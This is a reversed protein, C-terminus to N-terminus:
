AASSKVTSALKLGCGALTTRVAAKEADTLQADSPAGYRAQGLLEQWYKAHAHPKEAPRTKRFAERVPNLSDRLKRAAAVDGKFALDTYERIRKDVATQLLYPPNSCLYLKWGLEVSITSGNKKLRPRSWSGTAPWKRSTRM